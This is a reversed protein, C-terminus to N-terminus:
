GTNQADIVQFSLSGVRVARGPALAECSHGDSLYLTEQRVCVCANGCRSDASALSARSRLALYIWNPGHLRRLVLCVPTHPSLEVDQCAPSSGPLDAASWLRASLEYHNAAAVGPDGLTIRHEQGQVFNFEGNAPIRKGDVWLGATSRRWGDKPYQGGDKLRCHGSSWEILAHYQSISMSEERLERGTNDLLRALIECDRHRGIRVFPQTLIVIRTGDDHRLELQQRRAPGPSPGLPVSDPACEALALSTWFPRSNILGLFEKDIEISDRQRLAERLGNFSQDVRMDGAHGQQINNKVEVVLNECVRRPDEKASHITHTRYAAYVKRQGGKRYGVVITFSVKGAHTRPTYNLGFSIPSGRRPLVMPMERAIVRGSQRVEVFLQRLGDAVPRIEFDFTSQMNLVFVCSNNYRVELDSCDSHLLVDASPACEPNTTQGSEVVPRSRIEQLDALIPRVIDERVTAKVTTAPPTERGPNEEM